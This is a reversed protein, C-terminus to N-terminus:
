NGVEKWMPKQDSLGAAGNGAVSIQSVLTEWQDQHIGYRANNTEKM